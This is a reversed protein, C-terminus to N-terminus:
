ENVIEGALLVKEASGVIEFGEYVNSDCNQHHKKVSISGRDDPNWIVLDADYGEEIRGKSNAFGFLRAPAASCLDVWKMLSIKGEMVGYSYMLSLRHEIGGIGNPIKRFDDKGHAKQSLNFPCHDTGITNIVGNQLAKWLANRDEFSRYPPSCVHQASSSFDHSYLEKDLLLYQPCTEAYVEVGEQQAKEILQIAEKTSVHVVYVPCKTEAAYEILKKVALAELKNPRSQPHSAVGALGQEFLDNRKKEVEDGLECHVMLLAQHVALIKMIRLLQNDELGISEKYALYAKFTKYGKDICASIEESLGSHLDVPSIHFSLNSICNVAEIQRQKLAEILSQGKFPTVFDLITTTGGYLAAQSGSEFDDASFGAPSKLKLHVHPDIGGPIIYKGRAEIIKAEPDDISAKINSIRSGTILIDAHQTSDANILMGNKILTKL